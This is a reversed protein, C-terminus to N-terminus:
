FLLLCGTPNDSIAKLKKREITTTTTTLKVREEARLRGREQSIQV